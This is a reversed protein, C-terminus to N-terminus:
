QSFIGFVSIPQVWHYSGPNFVHNFPYCAAQASSVLRIQNGMLM